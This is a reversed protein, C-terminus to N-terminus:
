ARRLTYDFHRTRPSGIYPIADGFVSYMRGEWEVKAQAGIEIHSDKRLVRMRMVRETEFGENDQEARRSATGSQNQVALWVKLPIGTKSARTRINGDMDKVAEEPYLIVEANHRDLLSM